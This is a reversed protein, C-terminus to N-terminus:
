RAIAPAALSAARRRVGPREARADLSRRLCRHAPAGRGALPRRRVDLDLRLRPLLRAARRALVRLLDAHRPHIEGECDRLRCLCLGARRDPAPLEPLPLLQDMKASGGYQFPGHRLPLLGDAYRTGYGPAHGINGYNTTYQPRRTMGMVSWILWGSRMAMPTM